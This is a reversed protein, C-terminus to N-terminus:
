PRLPSSSALIYAITQVDLYSPGGDIPYGPVLMATIQVYKGIYQGLNLTRSRLAYLTNGSQNILRHTGYMYTTVGIPQIIGTAQVFHQGDPTTSLSHLTHAQRHHSPHSNASAFTHAPITIALLLTVAACLTLLARKYIIM